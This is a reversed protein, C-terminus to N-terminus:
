RTLHREYLRWHEFAFFEHTYARSWFHLAIMAAAGCAASGVLVFVYLNFAAIPLMTAHGIMRHSYWPDILSMRKLYASHTELSAM